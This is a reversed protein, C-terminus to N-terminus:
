PNGGEGEEGDESGGNGDGEADQSGVHPTDDKPGGDALADAVDDEHEGDNRQLM